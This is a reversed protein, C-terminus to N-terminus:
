LRGRSLSAAKLLSVRCQRGIQWSRKPVWCSCVRSCCTGGSVSHRNRRRTWSVDDRWPFTVIAWTASFQTAFRGPIPAAMTPALLAVTRLINAIQGRTTRADSDVVAATADAQRLELM